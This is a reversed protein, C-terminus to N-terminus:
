GFFAHDEKTSSRTFICIVLSTAANKENNFFKNKIRKEALVNLCTLMPTLHTRVKSM